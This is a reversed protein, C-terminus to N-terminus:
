RGRRGFWAALATLVAAALVGWGDGAHLHPVAASGVHAHVPLSMGLTVAGAVLAKLLPKM